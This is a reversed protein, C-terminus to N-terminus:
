WLSLEESTHVTEELSLHIPSWLVICAYVSLIGWVADCCSSSLFHKGQINEFALPMRSACTIFVPTRGELFVACCSM